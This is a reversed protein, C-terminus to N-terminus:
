GYFQKFFQICRAVVTGFVIQNTKEARNLYWMEIGAHVFMSLLLGLVTSSVLYILNKTKTPKLNERLFM